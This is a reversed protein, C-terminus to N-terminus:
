GSRANRHHFLFYVVILAVALSFWTIAYQLHDNPLEIRTVGGKPWGGPNPTADADIYFPAVRDLRDALAMAPLDVWFWYNLDARNDPLFWAPKKVPPLRLLGEVVVAGAIQGASRKAPDKLEAPIFGRNVFVIRGSPEQLPTLVQYGNRGAESTAGLFIEKGHVFVGEDTVHRFELGRAEELSRPATVPAAALAAQRQAILERKWFLREIQWSGLGLLLLLVPVSFVTPWFLPRFRTMRAEILGM